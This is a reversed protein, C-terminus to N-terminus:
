QLTADRFKVVLGAPAQGRDEVDIGRAKARERVETRDVGSAWGRRRDRAGSTARRAAQLYRALAGRLAQAHEASLDIEYEAGDLAFRVTGDAQSGDLDDVFLTQVKQTM